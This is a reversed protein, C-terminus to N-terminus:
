HAKTRCLEALAELRPRTRHVFPNREDWVYGALISCIMRKVREDKLQNFFIDHLAGNYWSDVFVRFVDIGRKLPHAFERDWDVKEGRLQRDVTAAALSASKMAITVGSSFVPDLFEGANGLLAFGDGWLRSVNAAYGIIQSVPTDYVANALWVQMRPDSNVLNRLIEAQSGKFQDFYAKDAVVGVSCRGNSFPILWYWVDADVPHVTILIKNRDFEACDIRDEVHTFFSRRAPFGSPADLGLLRPLVRGFGSADLLFKGRYREQAGEIDRVVLESVEAGPVAHIIEKGFRIDVGLEEARMALAHDFRAREVEYTETWGDSVFQDSFDFTSLEGRRSFVAGQKDQFRMKRVSDLMDAEELFEMCQPLLSEGISFRPFFDRELVLCRYGKRNLLSGALSGAPGAGIILVDWAEPAM